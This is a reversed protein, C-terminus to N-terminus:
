INKSNFDIFCIRTDNHTILKGFSKTPRSIVNIKAVLLLICLSSIFPMPFKKFHRSLRSHSFRDFNRSPHSISFSICSKLLVISSVWWLVSRQSRTKLSSNQDQCDCKPIFFTAHKVFHKLLEDIKIYLLM